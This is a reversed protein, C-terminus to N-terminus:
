SLAGLSPARHRLMFDPEPWSGPGSWHQHHFYGLNKGIAQAV